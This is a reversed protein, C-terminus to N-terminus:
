WGPNQPTLGRNLAMERPSFPWLMDRPSANQFSLVGYATGSSARPVPSDGNIFDNEIRKMNIMFKGWRILDHKRLTEFCLERARENEILEQFSEQTATQDDTLDPNSTQRKSLLAVAEAGSGGGGTLVILPPTTYNMGEEIIKVRTVAGNANVFAKGTAGTGDGGLITVTPASTYGTGGNTVQVMRVSEQPLYKGYARRRVRNVAEIAESSPTQNVMNDAEAFMLLVDSFRLLPFNIPGANKNKPEVLELERRWKGSTREYIQAVTFPIEVAPTGTIRYPAIAWERREDSSLLSAADEYLHWLRGTIQLFGYSYGYAEDEGSYAIGNNSGVRGNEQFADASNGYFEVEWISEKIDYRDQCMNIFVQQYSPNLDHQFGDEPAPDIVKKAWARAEAYKSSDNIPEGAMYLCVRALVGRVASKSVRGGHGIDSISKVMGEAQKMDALIQEYVERAPVRPAVTQDASRIPELMLPVAGWNSVLILHYFARLFLAEGKIAALETENMEVKDANALLFNARNIGEYWHEWNNAIRADSPETSYVAVGVRASSRAYYGEDGELGMRGLMQDGFTQPRGMRDYVGALASRLQAETEYYNEPSLADMPTTELFNKCAAFHFLLLVVIIFYRKKM